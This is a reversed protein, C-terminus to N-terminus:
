RAESEAMELDEPTNLNIFCRASFGMAMLEEETVYGAPCLRLAAEVSRKGTALAKEAAALFDRRYVACLPQLRGDAQPIVACLNRRQAERVLFRILEPSLNPLDVALVINWDSSSARLATAIAALPGEGPHEDPVVRAYHALDPRDGVLTVDISIARACELVHEILPRGRFPLLAKDRGM